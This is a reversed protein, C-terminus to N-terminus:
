LSQAVDSRYAIAAPIYGVMAALVILGPVLVLETWSFHLPGVTIGTYQLIASGFAGILGHGLLLGLAGGGQALLIAELLIVLMVTWRRAGLARMIAIERRRDSMSNYISVLVGIGAVVVVLIALLLLIVQVNGVIGDLLEAMVQAPLAAQATAGENIQKALTMVATPQTCVLVATVRKADEPVPRNPDMETHDHDHEAHDADPKAGASQEHHDLRAHGKLHYFGEMNVFVNRDIPTGTPALIGVVQFSRHKHEPSGKEALGHTPRLKSGVKLGTQQAVQAGIVADYFHDAEFNRGASFEYSRGDLYRLKSFREPVTGIVLFGEYSDGMCVPIATEVSTAFQGGPLLEEYYHYPINEIPRGINYATSLVLELQGGKAGVIMDYGQAGRRFSQDIVDHIVLVTVVLAVGLAISIATLTSPLSRQQISRWAIKWLSM